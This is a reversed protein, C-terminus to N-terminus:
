DGMNINGSKLFLWILKLRKRKTNEMSDEKILIKLRPKKAMVSRKSFM